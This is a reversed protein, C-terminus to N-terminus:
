TRARAPIAVGDLWLKSDAPECTACRWVGGGHPNSIISARWFLRGDCKECAAVPADDPLGDDRAGEAIPVRRFEPPTGRWGRVWYESGEKKAIIHIPENFVDTIVGGISKDPNLWLKGTHSPAANPPKWDPM